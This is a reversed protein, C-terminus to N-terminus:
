VLGYFVFIECLSEETMSEIMGGVYFNADFDFLGSDWRFEECLVMKLCVEMLWDGFLVGNM